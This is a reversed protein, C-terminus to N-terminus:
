QAKIVPGTVLPFYIKRTNVALEKNGNWQQRQQQSSSILNLLRKMALLLLKHTLFLFIFSGVEV